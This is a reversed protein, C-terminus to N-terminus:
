IDKREDVPILLALRQASRTVKVDKAGRCEYLSEGVRYRKYTVEARRIRGDRSPKVDSIVGLKYESKMVNRDAILVVDNVALDRSEHLWKSQQILTPAYNDSWHKWFM